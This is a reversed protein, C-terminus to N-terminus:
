ASRPVSGTSRRVAFIQRAYPVIGSKRLASASLSTIKLRTHWREKDGKPGYSRELAKMFFEDTDFSGNGTSKQKEPQKSPPKSVFSLKEREILAEVEAESRCGAAYWKTVIKDAYAVSAKGSTNVTIDYAIGIVDTSYGYEALWRTFTDDERKTLAREGIGFM